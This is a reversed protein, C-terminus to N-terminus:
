LGKNHVPSCGLQLNQRIELSPPAKGKIKTLVYVLENEQFQCVLISGKNDWFGNQTNDEQEEQSPVSNVKEENLSPFFIPIISIIIGFSKIM